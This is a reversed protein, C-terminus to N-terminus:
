VKKNANPFSLVNTMHLDKSACRSASRLSKCEVLTRGNGLAFWFCHVEIRINISFRCIVRLLRFFDIDTKQDRSQHRENSFIQWPKRISWRLPIVDSHLYVSNYIAAGTYLEYVRLVECLILHHLFLSPIVNNNYLSISMTLLLPTTLTYLCKKDCKGEYEEMFLFIFEITDWKLINLIMYKCIFYMTSPMSVWTGGGGKWSFSHVTSQVSYVTYPSIKAPNKNERNRPSSVSGPFYFGCYIIEVSIWLDTWKFDRFYFNCFNNWVSM